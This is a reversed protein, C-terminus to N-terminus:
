IVYTVSIGSVPYISPLFFDAKMKLKIYLLKINKLNKEKEKKKYNCYFRLPKCFPHLSTMAGCRGKSKRKGM